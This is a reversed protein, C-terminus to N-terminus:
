ALGESLRGCVPSHGVVKKFLHGRTTPSSSPPKRAATPSTHYCAPLFNPVKM